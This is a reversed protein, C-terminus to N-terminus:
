AGVELRALAANRTGTESACYTASRKPLFRGVSHQPRSAQDLTISMIGPATTQTLSTLWLRMLM